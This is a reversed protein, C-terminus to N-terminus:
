LFMAGTQEKIEQRADKLIDVAKDYGLKQTKTLDQRERKLEVNFSIKRTAFTAGERIGMQFAEDMEYKFVKDAIQYKVERWAERLNM